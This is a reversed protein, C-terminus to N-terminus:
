SPEERRKEPGAYTPFRDLNAIIEDVTPNRLVCNRTVLDGIVIRPFPRTKFGEIICYDMGSEELLALMDDLSGPRFAAVSKEADIGVSISAGASFFETTDRGEELAFMHDGLHKIVGVQGLRALRPVLTRILTTKGTNSRGVVQIIKM